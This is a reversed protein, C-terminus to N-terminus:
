MISVFRMLIFYLIGLGVIVGVVKDLVTWNVWGRKRWARGRFLLFAGLLMLFGAIDAVIGHYAFSHDHFEHKIITKVGGFVLLVGIIPELWPWIYGSLDKNWAIKQPQPNDFPTGDIACALADDPYEAGCYSCRKM